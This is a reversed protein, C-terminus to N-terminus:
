LGAGATLSGAAIEKLLSLDVVSLSKV